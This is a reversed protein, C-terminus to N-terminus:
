NKKENKIGRRAQTNVGERFYDDQDWLINKHILSVRDEEINSDDIRQELILKSLEKERQFSSQEWKKFTDPSVVGQHSYGVKGNIDFTLALNKHIKKYTTAFANLREQPVYFIVEGQRKDYDFGLADYRELYKTEERINFQKM